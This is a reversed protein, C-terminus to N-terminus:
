KVAVRRRAEKVTNEIQGRLEGPTFGKVAAAMGIVPNRMGPRTFNRLYLLKRGEVVVEKLYWSSYSEFMDGSPNDVMRARIGLAGDPLRERLIESTVKSGIKIGLFSVGIDQYVVARNLSAELVRVELLSSSYTKQGPFDFLVKSIEELSIAYVGHAEGFGNMRSEGTGPDKYTEVKMSILAPKDLLAILDAGPAIGYRVDWGPYEKSTPIQASLTPVTLVLFLVLVVM